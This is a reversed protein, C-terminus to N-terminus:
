VKFKVLMERYDGNNSSCSVTSDLQHFGKKAMTHKHYGTKVQLVADTEVETKFETTLASLM